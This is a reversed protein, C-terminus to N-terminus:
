GGLESAFMERQEEDLNLCFRYQDGAWTANIISRRYERSYKMTLGALIGATARNGGVTVGCDDEMRRVIEENLLWDGEEFLVYLFAEQKSTLRDFFDNPVYGAFEDPHDGDPMEIEPPDISWEQLAYDVLEDTREDIGARGFDDYESLQRQVRLTSSRYDIDRSGTANKKDEFPLNGYSSNWYKSAITLNGLRHVHEEFEEALDAPIKEEPLNRALIHEVEFETSLIQERNKLVEEGIETELQQAYHYLLYKIDRSRNSAYFEPDRLYREFRDDPTYSDTIGDIESIIEAAEYSEDTHVDHALRVLKGRGTDSRRGDIVYMRFVLTECAEIIDTMADAQDDGFRIQAAMLVPLVNAVRGLELIRRLPGEITDPRDEPEFLQRFAGAAERLDQSYEDIKTQVGDYDGARYRERLRTKLTDFSQHYEDSDYGAFLGWHFRQLSDETFDGVRDHGTSLVFLERYVSGFRQKIKTELTGTNSSRDDMYMLFSKTKDLTSLPKGRDNLSEFISAAESEDDIEVVNVRCDYRLREALLGVSVDNSLEAFRTEFYEYADELRQQSPTTPSIEGEGFLTDRFYEEDQDQPLLRPRADVPFILNDAEMSEAVEQNQNAAAYLFILSSTLRQQGDVVEYVPFRRRGDTQYEEDREDLIVNGFFHRSGDPLYLIDELLEQLQEQEWSYSRQYAPIDLLLNNFLSNLSVTRTEM